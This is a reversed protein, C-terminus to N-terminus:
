ILLQVNPQIIGEWLVRAEGEGRTKAIQLSKKLQITMTPLFRKAGM